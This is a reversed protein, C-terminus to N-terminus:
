VLANGSTSGDDLLSLAEDIKTLLQEIEARENPGPNQELGELLEQKQARLTAATTTM